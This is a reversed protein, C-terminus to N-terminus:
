RKPIRIEVRRNRARGRPSDSGDPKTNPVVPESEGKGDVAIRPVDVLQARLVRAVAAARRRSLRDNFSDSGKSDTHGEVSIAAPGQRRIEDAAQAIRGRARSSLRASNFPFLVDASLTVEVDGGEDKRRVSEDLTATEFELDVVPHHTDLVPADVDRVPAQQAAAPSAAAACLAFAVAAALRSPSRFM